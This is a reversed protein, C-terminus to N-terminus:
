KHLKRYESPSINFQRRFEKAFYSTNEFGCETAVRSIPINKEKLLLKSNNCRVTNIYEIVTFGTQEKFLRTFHFKSYGSQQSISELTLKQPFNKSIYDIANLVVDYKRPNNM